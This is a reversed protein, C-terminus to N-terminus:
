KERKFLLVFVMFVPYIELRGLIMGVTYITKAMFPQDAYNGLASISGLGPGVNGMSSVAGSVAEIVDVGCLLLLFIGIIIISCYLVIYLIVPLAESDDIYHGGIKVKSVATPHLGSRLQRLLTKFAIYVRDAKLGGSTSGSCGCQLSAFLLVLGAMSPWAANDVIGFGTTTVYCSIQYFSDLLAKGWNDYEGNLRLSFSLLLTMAAVSGLYYKVVPNKAVPRLSRTVLTTFILGFHLSSLLIFFTVTLNIATSDYYSVSLNKTSFGGTSVISFAHNVADFPPMGAIILSVASLVTIGIYVSVIVYVTRMSRFRYGERSLSSLEINTLRLRFPSASPLVLLLFVVVGLGGIFHTSSRWFLLGKPLSEIDDLITSGTTTFGSVSEFWANVLSFEGGWLVYPLMGFVFSLMWSLVVILFGEKVSIASSQHVFIFPFAGFIFTIIFSIALPGFSSDMGNFISVLLSLFMFLASVLLARGVNISIVKLNM